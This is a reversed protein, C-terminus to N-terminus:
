QQPATQGAPRIQISQATISGDSNATGSAAVTEGVTLDGSSGNDTKAINTSDSFLVIKSGGDPLKVTISTDDKSLIEGTVFNAGSGGRRVVTGGGNQLMQQRQEPTLNQFQAFGARVSSPQMQAYKMGGFFGGGGGILLAVIAIVLAKKNM